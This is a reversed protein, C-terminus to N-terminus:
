EYRTDAASFPVGKERGTSNRPKIVHRASWLAEVNFGFGLQAWRVETSVATLLDRTAACDHRARAYGGLVAALLGLDSAAASAQPDRLRRTVYGALQTHAM